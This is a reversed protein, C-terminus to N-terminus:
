LPVLQMQSLEVKIVKGGFTGDGLAMVMLNCSSKLIHIESPVCVNLGCCLPCLSSSCLYICIRLLQWVGM